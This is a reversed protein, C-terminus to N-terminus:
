AQAKKQSQEFEERMQKRLETDALIDIATMALAKAGDIVAKDGAASIAYEAFAPSHGNIDQPAICITPHIGPVIKSVNGM